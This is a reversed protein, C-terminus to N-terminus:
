ETAPPISINIGAATQWVFKHNQAENKHFAREDSIMWMPGEDDDTFVMLQSSGPPLVKNANEYEPQNDIPVCTDRMHPYKGGYNVGMDTTSLGDERAKNHGSSNDFLFKFEYVDGHLSVLCDIL